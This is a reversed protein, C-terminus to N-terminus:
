SRVKTLLLAPRHIKFVGLSVGYGLLRIIWQMADFKGLYQLVQNELIAKFFQAFAYVNTAKGIVGGVLGTELKEPSM